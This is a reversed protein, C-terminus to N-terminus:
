WCLTWCATTWWRAPLAATVAATFGACAALAFFYRGRREVPGDPTDMVVHLDVGIRHCFVDAIALNYSMPGSVLPLNKYRVM